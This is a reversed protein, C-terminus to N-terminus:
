DWASYMMSSAFVAVVCLLSSCGVSTLSASSSLPAGSTSTDGTAGYSMMANSHTSPESTVAFEGVAPLSLSINEPSATVASNMTSVVATTVPAAVIPAISAALRFITGMGGM